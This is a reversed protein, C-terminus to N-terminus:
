EPNPSPALLNPARSSGSVWTERRRYLPRFRSVIVWASITLEKLVIRPFKWSMAAPSVM